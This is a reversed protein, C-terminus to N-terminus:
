IKKGEKKVNQYLPTIVRNEWEKQTHIISTIIEDSALEIEYLRNRIENKDERTIENKNLLVLFDWDSTDGYDGRARSGYLIVDNDAFISDIEKKVTKVINM